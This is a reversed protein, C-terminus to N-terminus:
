QCDPLDLRECRSHHTWYWHIEGPSQSEKLYGLSVFSGLTQEVLPLPESTFAAIRRCLIKLRSDRTEGGDQAVVRGAQEILDESLLRYVLNMRLHGEVQMDIEPPNTGAHYGSVMAEWAKQIQAEFEGVFREIAEPTLAKTRVIARNADYRTWDNSLIELDYRDNEERVTTGPFPTLYHYGYLSGLSAAFRETEELTEPTEGPLGAIFSTHALIGVERCLQVAQRVQKKTIGKKIRKLMEANGTEVGFSISDCGAERMLALTERDVTNVRAFASWSFRLQRRLIESCVERVRDRQSVFLDDAVNIRRMGYSLIEEIEDVVLGPSRLRVRNGVMRRGQCFICAHPCGRSTILSIPYGLAQYRSLPLLHRAPIPLTDLDAIFDRPATLFPMGERRFAIGEIEEWTSAAMDRQMLAEITAEGEGIVVLDIEPYQRLTDEAAFSVHPGGMVTILSPQHRKATKLIEAAQPFNLTVSTSGLVDPRFADLQARLKGPDYRSVIYDFIRVLAGAKEFAAAVYSVGLPPAPAEALPYPPAIIAVRM